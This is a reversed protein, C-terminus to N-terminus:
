NAASEDVVQYVTDNKTGKKVAYMLKDAITIAQDVNLPRRIFIAVGISFGIAWSQKRMEQALNKQLKEFVVKAQDLNTNPLFIYM